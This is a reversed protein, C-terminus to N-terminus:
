HSKAKSRSRIGLIALFLVAGVATVAVFGHPNWLQMAAGAVPPGTVNSLTYVFVVASNAAALTTGRCRNGIEVLALSYLAWAAGGWVFLVLGLLMIQGVLALVVFPAVLCVTGCVTMMTRSGIRDAFWGLPLQLVINGAVFVSLLSIAVTEDFGLRLGWIPLFSFFATDVTGALAAAAFVTPMSMVVRWIPQHGERDLTVSYRRVLAIPVIAVLSLVVFVMVATYDATGVLTLILPGVAFGGAILMVYLAVVRGRWRAPAAVNIWTESAVWPVAGSMGSILRLVLWAAVSDYVPMLAMAATSLLSGAIMANAMGVRRVIPGVFPAMVMTGIPNAASVVGIMTAGLGREELVVSIWPLMGAFSIAFAFVSSLLAVLVWPSTDTNAAVHDVATKAQEGM